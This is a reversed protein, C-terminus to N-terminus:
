EDPTRHEELLPEKRLVTFFNNSESDPAADFSWLVLPEPGRRGPNFVFKGIPNHIVVDNLAGRVHIRGCLEKAVREADRESIPITFSIRRPGPERVCEEMDVVMTGLLRMQLNGMTITGLGCEFWIRAPVVAKMLEDPSASKM